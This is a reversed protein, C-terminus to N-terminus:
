KLILSHGMYERLVTNIGIMVDAPTVPMLDCIWVVNGLNDVAVAIKYVHGAYQTNFLVDSLYGGVSCTPMSDTFHTAFHAFDPTHNYPSLKEERWIDDM